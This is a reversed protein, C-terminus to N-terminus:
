EARQEVVGCAAAIDAATPLNAEQAVQTVQVTRGDRVALVEAAVSIAIEAPSKGGVGIGIPSHVRAVSEPAFGQALLATRFRAWKARSGILGLVRVGRPVLLRLCEFDRKHSHSMIYVFAHSPSSPFDLLTDEPAELLRRAQPFREATNWEIRDDLVSVDVDLPALSAAVAQAVHGAGVLVVHVRPAHVTMMVQVEGGCCQDRSANLFYSRLVCATAGPDALRAALLGRADALADHELGGGGITGEISGDARLVMRAGPERPASGKVTALTLVAYTEGAADLAALRAHTVPLSDM